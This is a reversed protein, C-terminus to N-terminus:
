GGARLEVTARRMGPALALCGPRGTPHGPHQWSLAILVEVVGLRRNMAIASADAPHHLTRVRRAGTRLTVCRVPAVDAELKLRRDTM